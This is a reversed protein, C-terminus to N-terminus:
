LTFRRQFPVGDVSSCPCVISVHTISAPPAVTFVPKSIFSPWRTGFVSTDTTLL